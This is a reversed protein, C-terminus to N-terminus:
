ININYYWVSDDQMNQDALVVMLSVFWLLLVCGFWGTKYVASTNYSLWITLIYVNGQVTTCILAPDQYVTDQFFGIYKIQFNACITGQSIFCAVINLKIYYLYRLFFNHM